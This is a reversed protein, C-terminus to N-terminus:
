GKSFTNTQPFHTLRHISTHWGRSLAKVKSNQHHPLPPIRIRSTLIPKRALWVTVMVLQFLRVSSDTAFDAFGHRTFGHRIFPFSGIIPLSPPGPKLQHFNNSRLVKLRLKPNWVIDLRSLMKSSALKTCVSWRKGTKSMLQWWSFGPPFSRKQKKHQVLMLLLLLCTLLLLTVM